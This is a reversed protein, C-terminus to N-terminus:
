IYTADFRLVTDRPSAAAVTSLLRDIARRYERKLEAPHLDLEQHPYGLEAYRQYVFAHSAPGLKVRRDSAWEVLRAWFDRWATPPEAPPVLLGPDLLLTVTM